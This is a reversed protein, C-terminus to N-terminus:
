VHGHEKAYEYLLAHLKARARFLRTRLTGIPIDLVRAADAYELGEIDVLIVSLRYDEGLLAIARELPEDLTSSLLAVDPRDSDVARLSPPTPGDDAVLAGVDVGAEWKQKRNYQNIFNNTLIRLFWARVNTGDKYRGDVFAEYGKVFTDQVLDQACDENGVCMRRAASLMGAENRDMLKAYEARRVAGAAATKDDAATRPIQKDRQAQIAVDM